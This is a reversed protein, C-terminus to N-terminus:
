GDGDLQLHSRILPISLSRREALARQALASVLRSLTAPARDARSVLYAAAGQGLVAEYEEAWRHVLDLLDSEALPKLTLRTAQGLRSRLDPLVIDDLGTAGMLVTTGAARWENLANFLAREAEAEGALRDVDDVVVLAAETTPLMRWAVSQSLPLYASDRGLGQHHHFAATLLHSRGHGVPGKLVTWSGPELGEQLTAVVAANPGAVFNSFNPHPPPRLALPLQSRASM